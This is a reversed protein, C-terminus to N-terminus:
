GDDTSTWRFVYGADDGEGRGSLWIDYSGAVGAPGLRWRGDPQPELPVTQEQGHETGAEVIRATFSWSAIPFEVFLEPSAGADPRPMTGDGDACVDGYCYSHASITLARDGAHIVVDPRNRTSAVPARWRWCSPWRWGISLCRSSPAGPERTGALLWNRRSVDDDQRRRRQVRATVVPQWSARQSREPSGDGKAREADRAARCGTQTFWDDARRQTAPGSTLAQQRSRVNPPRHPGGTSSDAMRAALGFLPGASSM